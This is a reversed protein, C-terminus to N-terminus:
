AVCAFCSECTSKSKQVFCHKGHSSIWANCRSSSMRRMSLVPRYLAQRFSRTCVTTTWANRLTLDSWSFFSTARMSCVHCSSLIKSKRTKSATRASIRLPPPLAAAASAAARMRSSAAAAPSSSSSSGVRMGGPGPAAAGSAAGAAGARGVGTAPSAAVAAGGGFRGLSSPAVLSTCAWGCTALGDCAFTLTIRSRIMDSGSSLGKSIRPMASPESPWEM